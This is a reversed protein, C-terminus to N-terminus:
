FTAMNHVICEVADSNREESMWLSVQAFDEILPVSAFAFGNSDSLSLSKSPCFIKGSFREKLSSVFCGDCLTIKADGDVYSLVTFALCTDTYTVSCEGANSPVQPEEKSDHLFMIGYEASLVVEIKTM